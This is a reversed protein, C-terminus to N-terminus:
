EVMLAVVDGESPECGYAQRYCDGIMMEASMPEKGMVMGSDVCKMELLQDIDICDPKFTSWLVYDVYGNAVDEHSINDGTGKQVKLFEKKSKVWALVAM